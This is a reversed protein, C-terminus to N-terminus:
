QTAAVPGDANRCQLWVREFRQEVVELLFERVGQRRVLPLGPESM